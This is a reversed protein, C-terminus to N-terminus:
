TSGTGPTCAPTVAHHSSSPARTQRENSASLGRAPRCIACPWGTWGAKEGVSLRGLLMLQTQAYFTALVDLGLAGAVFWPAALAATSRVPGLGFAREVTTAVQRDFLRLVVPIDDRGRLMDRVALATELNVMDSNTGIAVARCTGLRVTQLTRSLTADGIVIRAGIARAQELYRNERNADIVVVEAGAARLREAVQLGISGLGVVVVHDALQCLRRRGLAEEIRVNVLANTLLALCTAALAAGVVMLGIAFLRLLTPQNRFSFDGYGVTTVTEVTFYLADWVTMRSGDPERYSVRLVFVAVVVVVLMATLAKGLRRDVLEPARGAFTRLWGPWVGIDHSATPHGGQIGADQLDQPTGLLTVIDGSAVSLDRGPCVAIEGDHGIVALPALDGYLSRLTGRAGARTQVALFAQGGIDLQHVGTQLCAEVMSPASLGAVDLV